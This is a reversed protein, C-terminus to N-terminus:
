QVHRREVLALYPGRAQLLAAHAGSEVLRGGQLVLIRDYAAMDAYEHSIVILPLARGEVTGNVAVSMTTPGMSLPQVMSKSPYWIAIELAKRDPDAAFGRQFGAAHVCTSALAIAFTTAAFLLKSTLTKM